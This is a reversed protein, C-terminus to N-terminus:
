IVECIYPATKKKEFLHTQSHTRTHTHLLFNTDKRLNFFKVFNQVNKAIQLVIHRLHNNTQNVYFSYLLVMRLLLWLYNPPMGNSPQCICQILQLQNSRIFLHKYTHRGAPDQVDFPSCFGSFHTFAAFQSHMGHRAVFAIFYKIKNARRWM